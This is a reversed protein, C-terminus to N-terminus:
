QPYEFVRANCRATVGFHRGDLLVRKYMEVGRDNLMKLLAGHWRLRYCELNHPLEDEGKWMRTFASSFFYMM